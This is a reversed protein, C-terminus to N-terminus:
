HNKHLKNSESSSVTAPARDLLWGEYHRTTHHTIDSQFIYVVEELDVLGDGIGFNIMAGGLPFLGQELFCSLFSFGDM